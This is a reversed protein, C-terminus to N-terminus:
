REAMENNRTANREKKWEQYLYNILLTYGYKSLCEKLTVEDMGDLEIKKKSM